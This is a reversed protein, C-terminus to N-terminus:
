KTTFNKPELGVLVRELAGGRSGKIVVLTKSNLMSKIKMALTEEYSDTINLNKGTKASEFGAKFHAQSAGMFYCDSVPSLAVQKGLEFHETPAQDGLERMESFVGIVKQEPKVVSPLNKILAAFSDPNANYGDFLAQAGSQLMVWQNRGWGTQCKELKAFIVEVKVDALLALSSATMLNSVNQTGFLPVMVTQEYQLIRSHIKLGGTESSVLQFHVDAESTGFTITRAFKDKLRAYMEATRPDALNFAAKTTSPLDQYIEEKAKAIGDMSGFNEIHARGVNNVVVINPQAIRRLETIEGAHNMGMELMAVEHEPKLKLLTLPLGWHNNFSGENKLTRFQGELLTTTFDKVTTKGNSGTVALVTKGWKQRWHHALNQLAKLTDDVHIWTTKTLLPAYDATWEHSIIASAGNEVAMRVFQHGDHTDGKLAIFVKGRVDKRSDTVVESFETGHQSRLKGGTGRVLDDLSFSM